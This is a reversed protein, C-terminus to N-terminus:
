FFTGFVRLWNGYLVKAIEEDTFGREILRRTLNRLHGHHHLDPVLSPPTTYKELAAREEPTWRKLLFEIFDLGLGVHDVGVLAVVHLLQDIFHDLTALERQASLLVATLGIVGGRAAVAQMQADTSLRELDHFVRPNTHSLIVPRDTFALVDEVGAPNLHALDILIGLEDCAQIVRKGFASLGAPSSGSAAFVAGDGAANRRAHTLGV